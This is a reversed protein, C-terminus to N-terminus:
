GQARRERIAKRHRQDKQDKDATEWAKYLVRESRPRRCYVFKLTGADARSVAWGIPWRSRCAASRRHFLQSAQPIAEPSAHLLCGLGGDPNLRLRGTQRLWYIIGLGVSIWESNDKYTYRIAPSLYCMLVLWHDHAAPARVAKPPASIAALRAALHPRLMRWLVFPRAARPSRRSRGPAESMSTRYLAQHRRCCERLDNTGQACARISTLTARNPCVSLGHAPHHRPRRAQNKKVSAGLM